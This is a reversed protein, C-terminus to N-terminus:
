TVHRFGKFLKRLKLEAEDRTVSLESTANQELYTVSQELYTVSQELYTASQELYTASQELLQM